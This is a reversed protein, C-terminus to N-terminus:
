GLDFGVINDLDYDFIRFDYKYLKYLKRVLPLELQTYYKYLKEFTGSTHALRPFQVYSANITHLALLSDDVLTEYKGSFYFIDDIFYYWYLTYTQLTLIVAEELYM